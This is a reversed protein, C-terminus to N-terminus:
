VMGLYAEPDYRHTRTGVWHGTREMHERRWADRDISNDFTKVLLATSLPTWHSLTCSRCEAQWFLM